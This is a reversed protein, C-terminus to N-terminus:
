ISYDMPAFFIKGDIIKSPLTVNETISQPSSVPVFCTGIMLFIIGVISIRTDLYKKKFELFHIIRMNKM